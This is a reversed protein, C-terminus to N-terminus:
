DMGTRLASSNPWTADAKLAMVTASRSERRSSVSQAWLSSSFTASRVRLSRAASAPATSRSFSAETPRSAAPMAWSSLLGSVPM